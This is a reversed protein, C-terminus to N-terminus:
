FLPDALRFAANFEDDHMCAQGLALLHVHMVQLPSGALAVAITMTHAPDQRLTAYATLDAARPTLTTRLTTAAAGCAAPAATPAPLAQDLSTGLAQMRELLAREDDTFPREGMAVAMDSAAAKAGPDHMATLGRTMSATLPDGASGLGMAAVLAAPDAGASGAHPPAPSDIPPRPDDCAGLLAVTALGLYRHM